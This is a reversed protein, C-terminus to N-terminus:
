KLLFTKLNEGNLITCDEPKDFIGKIIKLYLGEIGQKKLGKIIFPAQIKTL